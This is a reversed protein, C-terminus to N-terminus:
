QLSGGERFPVWGAAGPAARDGNQGGWHSRDDSYEQASCRGGNGTGAKAATRPQATGRGRGKESSDAGRHIQGIGGRNGAADHRGAGAAIGSRGDQGRWKRGPASNNRKRAENGYVNLDKHRAAEAEPARGTEQRIIEQRM